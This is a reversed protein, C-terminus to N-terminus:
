SFVAEYRVGKEDAGIPVIFVHFDDLETNKFLYTNQEYVLDGSTEFVLSFSEKNNLAKIEILECNTHLDGKFAITFSKDLLKQFTLINHQMTNNNNNLLLRLM